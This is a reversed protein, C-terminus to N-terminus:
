LDIIEPVQRRHYTQNPLPRGSLRSIITPIMARQAPTLGSISTLKPQYKQLLSGSITVKAQEPQPWSPVEKYAPAIPKVLTFPKPDDSLTKKYKIDAHLKEGPNAYLSLLSDPNEFDKNLMEVLKDDEISEESDSAGNEVDLRNEGNPDCRIIIGDNEKICPFCKEVHCLGVDFESAHDKLVHSIYGEKNLTVNCVECTKELEEEEVEKEEKVTVSGM